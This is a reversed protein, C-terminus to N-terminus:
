PFCTSPSISVCETTTEEYLGTTTNGLIHRKFIADTVLQVPTLGIQMIQEVAFM